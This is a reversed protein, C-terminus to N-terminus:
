FIIHGILMGTAYGINGAIFWGILYGILTPIGTPRRTLIAKYWNLFKM